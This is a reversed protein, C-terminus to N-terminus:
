SGNWSVSSRQVRTRRSFTLRRVMDTWFGRRTGGPPHPASCGARRQPAQEQNGTSNIEQSFAFAGLVFSLNESLDGAYRLEQTWQTQQSPNASVTTIPLGLFDRDNSPGWNWLRWATISTLTGPGVDWNVTLSAGGFDQNSQHYTDADTLRDFPNFSPPAYGFYDALAAYQRNTNRLTPAVGAPVLAYGNPRQRTSDAALIVELTESM